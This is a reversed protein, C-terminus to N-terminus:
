NCPYDEVLAQYAVEVAEAEPRTTAELSMARVVKLVDGGEEQPTSDVPRCIRGEDELYSIFSAVDDICFIATAPYETQCKVAMVEATLDCRACDGEKASAAVSAFSVAAVALSLASKKIMQNETV